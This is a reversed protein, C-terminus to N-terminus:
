APRSRAVGALKAARRVIKGCLTVFDFELRKGDLWVQGAEDSSMTHLGDPYDGSPDPCLRTVVTERYTDPTLEDVRHIVIAAGYARACDQGPRFLANGVRFLPGASRAGCIDIKVPTLRHPQWPGDLTEAHMLCLNDHEGIDVDTYAIWYRNQHRFLTPDALQRGPAITCVPVLQMEPSLRYLSTAGQELSEPMVYIDQGDRFTCPYSFHTGPESLLTSVEQWSGDDRPAVAVITGYGTAALMKECLLVDTGPCPFPDAFWDGGRAPRLWRVPGPDECQAISALSKAAIGVGWREVFLRSRWREVFHDFWGGVPLRRAGHRGPDFSTTRAGRSVGSLAAEILRAATRELRSEFLHRDGRTGIVANDLVTGASSYPAYSVLRLSMAYPPQHWYQQMVTPDCLDKGDATELRLLSRPYPTAASPFHQVLTQHQMGIDYLARRTIPGAEFGSVIVTRCAGAHGQQDSAPAPETRDLQAGDQVALGSAFEDM